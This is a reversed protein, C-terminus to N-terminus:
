LHKTQTKEECSQTLARPQVSMFISRLLSLTLEHGAGLNVAAAIVTM